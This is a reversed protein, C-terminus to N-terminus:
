AVPEAAPQHKVLAVVEDITATAIAAASQAAAGNSPSVAAVGSAVSALADTVAQKKDVGAMDKCETEIGMILSPLLSMFMGLFSKM